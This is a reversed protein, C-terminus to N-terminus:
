VNVTGQASFSTSVTPSGAVPQQAQTLAPQQALQPGVVVQQQPATQSPTVQAPPQDPITQKSQQVNQIVAPIPQQQQVIVPQPQVVQQQADVVAAPEGVQEVTSSVVKGNQIVQRTVTTTSSSKSARKAARRRARRAKRARRRRARRGRRTRRARNADGDDDDDYDMGGGCRKVRRLSRGNIPKTDESWDEVGSEFKPRLKGSRTTIFRDNEDEEIDVEANEDVLGAKNLLNSPDIVVNDYKKVGTTTPDAGVLAINTNM